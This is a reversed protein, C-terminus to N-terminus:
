MNKEEESIIRGARDYEIIKIKTAKSRVVNNGNDDLYMKNIRTIPTSGDLIEVHPDNSRNIGVKKLETVIKQFNIVEKFKWQRKRNEPNDYDMVDEYLTICTCMDSIKKNEYCDTFREIAEQPIFEYYAQNFWMKWSAGFWIGDIQEEYGPLKIVDVEKQGKFTKSDILPVGSIDKGKMEYMEVQTNSQWVSDTLSVARAVIGSEDMIENILLNIRSENEMYTDYELVATALVTGNYNQNKFCHINSKRNTVYVDFKDFKFEDQMKNMLTKENYKVNKGNKYHRIRMDTPKFLDLLEMWKISIIPCNSMCLNISVRDDTSM